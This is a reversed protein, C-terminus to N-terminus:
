TLERMAFGIMFMTYIIAVFFKDIIAFPSIDSLTLFGSISAAWILIGVLFIMGGNTQIDWGMRNLSACIIMVVLFFLLIYTYERHQEDDNFYSVELEDLGRFWDLLTSGTTNYEVLSWYADDELIKYGDGLDVLLRGKVKSYNMSYNISVSCLTSNTAFVEASTIIITKNSNLLELKCSVLNDNKASVNYGFLTYNTTKIVGSSPFAFWKLGKRDSVYEYDDLGTEMTLTYQSQTPKITQTNTTYGTKSATITHGYNPNLWITVSGASDTLGSFITTTSGGLVRTIEIDVGSIPTNSTSATIFTVYIGDASNLLYLTTNTTSNTLTLLSPNYIRTPYGTLLYNVDPLVYYPRDAPLSCFRYSSANTSVSYSLTKNATGNGLYYVFTSGQLTGNISSLTNEDKFSINWYPVTLTANCLGFQIPSITQYYTSTNYNVGSYTLQWILSINNLYNAPSQRTYNWIYGSQTPTYSSGNIFLTVASLNTNYLDTLNVVYSTGQTEYISSTYTPTLQNLNKVSFVLTEYDTLGSNDITWVYLNYTGTSLNLNVQTENSLSTMNTGNVNYTANAFNNDAVSFNITVNPSSSTLYYTTNTPLNITIVPPSDVTLNYITSNFFGEGFDFKWYYTTNGTINPITVNTSFNTGSIDAIPYDMNNLVFTVNELTDGVGKRVSMWFNVINGQTTTNIYSHKRRDIRMDNTINTRVASVINGYTDNAYFRLTNGTNVPYVITANANCTVTENVRINVNLSSINEFWCTDLNDDYTTWNIFYSTYPFYGYIGDTYNTFFRYNSTEPVTVNITPGTLDLDWFMAEEYIRSINQNLNKANVYHIRKWSGDWCHTEVIGGFVNNPYADPDSSKTLTGTIRLSIEAGYNWCSTPICTCDATDCGSSCVSYNSNWIAQPNQVRTQFKSTNLVNIPKSYNVIYEIATRSTTNVEGYTSWNGDYTNPHSNTGWDASFSYNGTDLGGCSTSVNASEQYCLTASVLSILFMGLIITFILKSRM